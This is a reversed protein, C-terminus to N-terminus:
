LMPLALIVLVHWVFMNFFALTLVERWHKRPIRLPVKMLLLAVTLVPMGTWMSLTRFTLPPFGTVGLKMIPWNIGWVLTLLILTTWQRSSLKQMAATIPM